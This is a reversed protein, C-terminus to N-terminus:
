SPQCSSPSNEAAGSSSGSGAGSAPPGLSGFLQLYAHTIEDGLSSATSIVVLAAKPGGALKVVERLITMRGLKDEAGGIPMVVGRGSPGGAEPAPEPEDDPAASFEGDLQWGDQHQPILGVDPSGDGPGTHTPM